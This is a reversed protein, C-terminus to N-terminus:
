IFTWHAHDHVTLKNHMRRIGDVESIAQVERRDAECAVRGELTVEGDAVSVEVERLDLQRADALREAIAVRLAHDIEERQGEGRLDQPQEHTM